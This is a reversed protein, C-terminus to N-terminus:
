NYRLKYERVELGPSFVKLQERAYHMDMYHIIDKEYGQDYSLVIYMNQYSAAYKKVQQAFNAITFPPIAGGNDSYRDWQPITEIGASGSYGYEIPYITFPASVAIIDSPQAQTSLYQDVDRYDEKVPTSSSINQYFLLGVMCILFGGILFSAIKKSYSMLVWAIIFFLTPTVFILYRSLFIPKIYSGLFTVMIPLFTIFVFYSINNAAVRKKQTFIFFFTVVILPWLAIILAQIGQSQFGFLFNAFTQFITYSTPKTILPQTNSAFGLLAVYIVWPLFSISAFILLKIYEWIPQRNKLIRKLLPMDKSEKDKILKTVFQSGLYLCQSFTFVVFFYHTYFGAVTSLFYGLKGHKADSRMMRLFYLHNISTVLTFLTYTRAESSYWMIFPSLAFLAVAVVAINKNSSEKYVHYL